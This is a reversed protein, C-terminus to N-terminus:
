KEGITVQSLLYKLKCEYLNCLQFQRWYVLLIKLTLFNKSHFPYNLLIINYQQNICLM